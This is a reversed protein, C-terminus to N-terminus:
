GRKLKTKCAIFQYLFTKESLIDALNSRNLFIHNKFNSYSFFAGEITLSHSLAYVEHVTIINFFLRTYIPDMNM